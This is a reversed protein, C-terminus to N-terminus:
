PSRGLLRRLPTEVGQIVTDAPTVDQPLRPFPDPYVAPRGPHVPDGQRIHLLDVPNGPQEPFKLRVEACARVTGRGGPTHVDRFRLAALPREANRGHTVPHGLLRGLQHQLGDELRVERRAREPEPRLPRSRLRHFPEPGPEDLAILEDRLEIDAVEETLDAM